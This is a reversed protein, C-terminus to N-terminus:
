QKRSTLAVGLVLQIFLDVPNQALINHYNLFPFPVAFDDVYHNSPIM